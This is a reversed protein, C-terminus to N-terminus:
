LCYPSRIFLDEFDAEQNRNTFTGHNADIRMFDM